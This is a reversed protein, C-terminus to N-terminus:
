CDGNCDSAFFAINFYVMETDIFVIKIKRLRLRCKINWLATQLRNDIREKM